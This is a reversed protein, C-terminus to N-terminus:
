KLGAMNLIWTLLRIKVPTAWAERYHKGLFFQKFKGAELNKNAALTITSDAFSFGAEVATSDGPKRYVNDKLQKRYV